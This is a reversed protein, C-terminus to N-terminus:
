AADTTDKLNPLAPVPWALVERIQSGLTLPDFPKAIVGQVGLEMFKRRDAGQVKATLFIVPIARTEEGQQLERLTSPGDKDPMMVDLLIADPKERRALEVGLTSSNATSVRWGQSMELSLCAVERIDDEDDIILLHKPQM